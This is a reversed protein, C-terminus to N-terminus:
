RGEREQQPAATPPDPLPMWHTPIYELPDDYIGRTQGDTWLDQQGEGIFWAVVIAAPPEYILIATKDRPATEIPQWM